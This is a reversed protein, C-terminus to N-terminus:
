KKGFGGVRMLTSYYPCPRRTGRELDLEKPALRDTYSAFVSLLSWSIVSKKPRGRGRM